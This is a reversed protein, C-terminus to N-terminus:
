RLPDLRRPALRALLPLAGVVIFFKKKATFAYM